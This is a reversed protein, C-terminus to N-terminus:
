KDAVQLFIELAALSFHHCVHLVCSANLITAESSSSKIGYNALQMNCVTLSCM